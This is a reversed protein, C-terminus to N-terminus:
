NKWGLVIFLDGVYEGQIQLHTLIKVIPQLLPRWSLLMKIIGTQREFSLESNEREKSLWLNNLVYLYGFIIIFLKEFLWLVSFLSLM